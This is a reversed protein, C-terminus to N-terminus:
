FISCENEFSSRNEKLEELNIIEEEIKEEMYDFIGTINFQEEHSGFNYKLVTEVDDDEPKKFLLKKAKELNTNAIKKIEEIEKWESLEHKLFDECM